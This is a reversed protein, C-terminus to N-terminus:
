FHLLDDPTLTKVTITLLYTNTATFSHKGFLSIHLNYGKYSLLEVDLTMSDFDHKEWTEIKNHFKRQVKGNSLACLCSVCLSCGIIFYYVHLKIYM